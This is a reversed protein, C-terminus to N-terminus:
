KLSEKPLKIMLKLGREQSAGAISSFLRGYQENLWSNDEDSVRGQDSKEPTQILAQVIDMMKDLKESMEKFEEKSM